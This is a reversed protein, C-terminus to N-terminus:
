RRGDTGTGPMCRGDDEDKDVGGGDKRVRDVGDMGAGVGENRVRGVSREGGTTEGDVGGEATRVRESRGRGSEDRRVDAREGRRRGKTAM